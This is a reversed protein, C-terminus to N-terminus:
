KAGADNGTFLAEAQGYLTYVERAKGVDEENERSKLTLRRPAILALIAARGAYLSLNPPEGRKEGRSRSEVEAIREDLAAALVGTDDVACICSIRARDVDPRSSLYEVSELAHQVNRMVCSGGILMDSDNITGPYDSRVADLLLVIHGENVLREVEPETLGLEKDRGKHLYIVAPKRAAGGEPLMVYSTLGLEGYAVKERRCGEVAESQLPAVPGTRAPGGTPSTQSAAPLALATRIKEQLPERGKEWAHLASPAVFEPPLGAEIKRLWGEMSYRPDKREEPPLVNLTAEPLLRVGMVVARAERMREVHKRLTESYRWLKDKDPDLGACVDAVDPVEPLKQIEEMTMKPMGLHKAVWAYAAKNTQFPQHGANPTVHVQFCDGRGFLDFVRKAEVYTTRKFKDVHTPCADKEGALVLTACHPAGLAFLEPDNAYKLLDYPRWCLSPDPVILKFDCTWATPMSVKVREDVATVYETLTGGLSHGACGIRTKDVDPRTCLYDIGRVVDYVMKGITSKGAKWSRPAHEDHRGGV